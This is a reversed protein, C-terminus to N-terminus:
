EEPPPEGGAPEATPQPGQNNRWVSILVASIAIVAIVLLARDFQGVTQFAQQLEGGFRWALLVGTPVSIMAALGDMTLFTRPPLRLTGSCIFIPARLGFLFRGFFVAKAGHREFLGQAKAMREPTLARGIGPIREPTQGLKRGFTFLVFDGLLVGCLAVAVMTLAEPLGGGGLFVAYGGGIVGVEEPLPMGFGCALLFLFVGLYSWEAVKLVLWEKTSLDEALLLLLDM